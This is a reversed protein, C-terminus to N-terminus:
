PKTISKNIFFDDGIITVNDLKGRAIGAARDLGRIAEKKTLGSNRADFVINRAQGKGKISKNTTNRITTSTGGKDLSKFEHKVGDVFADGQRGAGQVGELPNKDVKRGLQELYEAVAREKQDSFGKSGRVFAGAGDLADDSRRMWFFIGVAANDAYGGGPIWDTLSLGLNM